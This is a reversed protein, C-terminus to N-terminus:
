YKELDGSGNERYINGFGDKYEGYDIQEVDIDEGDATTKQVNKPFYSEDSTEKSSKFSGDVTMKMILLVFRAILYISVIFIIVASLIYGILYIVLMEAFVFLLRLVIVSIGKTGFITETFLTLGVAMFVSVSIAVCDIEINMNWVGNLVSMSGVCAGTLLVFILLTKTFTYNIELKDSWWKKDLEMINLYNKM